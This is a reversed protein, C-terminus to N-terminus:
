TKSKIAKHILLFVLLVIFLAACAKHIISLAAIGHINMIVVGSVLAIGYFARMLIEFVTLKWEKKTFITYMALVIIGIVSLIIHATMGTMRLLFLLVGIILMPIAFFLDKKM